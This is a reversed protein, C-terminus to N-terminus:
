FVFLIFCTVVGNLVRWPDIGLSYGFMYEKWAWVVTFQMWVWVREYRQVKGKERNPFNRNIGWLGPCINNQLLKRTVARLLTTTGGGVNIGTLTDSSFLRLGILIGLTQCVALLWFFFFLQRKVLHLFNHLSLFIVWILFDTNWHVSMLVVTVCLIIGLLWMTLYWNNMNIFLLQFCIM